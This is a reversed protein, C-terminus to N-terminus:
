TSLLSQWGTRGGDSMRLSAPLWYQRLGEYDALRSKEKQIPAGASAGFQNRRFPPLKGLPMLFNKADMYSNRLFEYATGHFQNRGSKTIANIIGGSSKGYEASFNGDVRLIASRTSALIVRWSAAPATNMNDNLSIGNLRYNNSTPRAGSITLATGEAASARDSTNTAAQTHIANVGPQLQALDTWSTRKLPM